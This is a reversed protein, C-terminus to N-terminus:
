FIYEMHQHQHYLPINSRMSPFNVTSFTFSKDYIHTQFLGDKAEIGIDLYCVIASSETRRKLPVMWRDISKHIRLLM